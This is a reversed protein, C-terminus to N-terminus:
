IIIKRVTFTIKKGSAQLPVIPVAPATVDRYCTWSNQDYAEHDFTIGNRLSTQDLPSPAVYYQAISNVTNYTGFVDNDQFLLGFFRFQDMSLGCLGGETNNCAYKEPINMAERRAKDFTVTPWLGRFATKSRCFMRGASSMNLIESPLDIQSVMEDQGVMNFLSSSVPESAGCQGTCPVVLMRDSTTLDRGTVEITTTSASPQVVWDFGTDIRTSIYLHGKPSCVNGKCLCVVKTGATDGALVNDFVLETPTSAVSPAYDGANEQAVCSSASAHLSLTYGSPETLGKGKMTIGVTADTTGSWSQLDFITDNAIIQFSTQTDRHIGDNGAKVLVLKYPLAAFDVADNANGEGICIKYSKRNSSSFFTMPGFTAGYANSVSPAPFCVQGGTKIPHHTCSHGIVDGSVEDACSSSEDDDVIKVRLSNTGPLSGELRLDFPIGFVASAPSIKVIFLDLDGSLWEGKGHLAAAADNEADGPATAVADAISTKYLYCNNVVRARSSSDFSNDHINYYSWSRCGESSYQKCFAKCQLPSIVNPPKAILDADTHQRFRTPRGPTLSFCARMMTKGAIVAGNVDSLEVEHWAGDVPQSRTLIWPANSMQNNELIQVHGDPSRHEGGTTPGTHVRIHTTGGLIPQAIEVSHALGHNGPSHKYELYAGFTNQARTTWAETVLNLNSEYGWHAAPAGPNSDWVNPSGHDYSGSSSQVFQANTAYAGSTYHSTYVFDGDAELETCDGPGNLYCRKNKTDFSTAKCGEMQGCIENCLTMPDLQEPASDTSGLYTAAYQGLNILQNGDVCLAQASADDGDIHLFQPGDGGEAYCSRLVPCPSLKNGGSNVQQSRANWNAEATNCTARCDNGSNCKSDRCTKCLLTSVDIETPISPNFSTATAGPDSTSQGTRIQYARKIGQTLFPEMKIKGTTLVNQRCRHGRTTVVRSHEGADNFQHQCRSDTFLRIGSVRWGFPMDNSHARSEVRVTWDSSATTAPLCMDVGDGQYGAKCACSYGRGALPSFNTCDADAHCPSDASCENRELFFVIDSQGCGGESQPLGSAFNVNTFKWGADEVTLIMSSSMTLPSSLTGNHHVLFAFLIQNAGLAADSEKTRQIPFFLELEIPGDGNTSQGTEDFLEFRFIDSVGKHSYFEAPSTPQVIGFENVSSSGGDFEGAVVNVYYTSDPVKVLKVRFNGASLDEKWRYFWKYSTLPKLRHNDTDTLKATLEARSFSSVIKSTFLVGGLFSHLGDALSCLPEQRQVGASGKHLAIEGAMETENLLCFPLPLQDSAVRPEDGVIPITAPQSYEHCYKSQVQGIGLTAILVLLVFFFGRVGPPRGSEPLMNISLQQWLSDGYRM